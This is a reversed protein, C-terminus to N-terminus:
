QPKAQFPFLSLGRSHALGRVGLSLHVNWELAHEVPFDSDKSFGVLWPLDTLPQTLLLAVFKVTLWQFFWALSIACLNHCKGPTSYSWSHEQNSNQCGVCDESCQTHGVFIRDSERHGMLSPEGVRHIFVWVLIFVMLTRGEHLLFWKLCLSWPKCKFKLIREKPVASITCSKWSVSGAWMYGVRTQDGADSEPRQAGGPPISLLFVPTLRTARFPM